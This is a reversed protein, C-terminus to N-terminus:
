NEETWMRYHFHEGYSEMEDKPYGNEVLWSLIDTVDNPIPKPFEYKYGLPPEIFTIQIPNKSLIENMTGITDIYFKERTVRQSQISSTLLKKLNRICDINQNNSERILVDLYDEIDSCQGSTFGMSRLDSYIDRKM